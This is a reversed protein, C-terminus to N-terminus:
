FSYLYLALQYDQFASQVKKLKSKVDQDSHLFSQKKIKRDIQERYFIISQEAYGKIEQVQIHKNTKYKENNWNYKYNNLVEALVNHNGKLRSKEKQELFELIEQQIEQISDLKKDITILAAAMFLMTPDYPIITNAIVSNGTEPMLRLAGSFKNNADKVIGRYGGGKAKVLEGSFGNPFIGKFYGKRAGTEVTQTITRFSAPLSTFAIGLASVETLPLKMYKAYSIENEIVSPYYEIDTMIKVIEYKKNKEDM